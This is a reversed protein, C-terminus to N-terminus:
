AEGLQKKVENVIVKEHEQRMKEWHGWLIAMASIIGIARNSKMSATFTDADDPPMRIQAMDQPSVYVHLEFGGKGDSAWKAGTDKPPPMVLHSLVAELMNVERIGDAKANLIQTITYKGSRQMRSIHEPLNVKLGAIQQAIFVTLEQDTYTQKTVSVGNIESM